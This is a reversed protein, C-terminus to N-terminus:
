VTDSGTVPPRSSASHVRDAARGMRDAVDTLDDAYLSSYVDLTLAASSHGLMSQLVKVSAGAQVALSACVWRLDHPVLAPLEARRVAAAFWKNPRLYGGARNGFLLEDRGRGECQRALPEVLLEPIPVTRGKGNKPTGVVVGGGTRVANRVVTIRKRLLDLDRVLLGTAESWRLGTYALTLVLAGHEGAERALDAVQQHTLFVHEKRPKRPLRTGRSPNGHLLGDAVADDLVGNDGGGAVAVADGGGETIM